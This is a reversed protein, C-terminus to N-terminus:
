ACSVPTPREVAAIREPAPMQGPTPAQACAAVDLLALVEADPVPLFRECLRNLDLENRARAYCFIEDVESGVTAAWERTCVLVAVIIRAALSAGDLPCRRSADTWLRGCTPCQAATLRGGEPVVLTEVRDEELASLV